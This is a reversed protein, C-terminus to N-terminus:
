LAHAHNLWELMGSGHLPALDDGMMLELPALGSRRLIYPQSIQDQYTWRLQEALWAKGFAELRTRAGRNPAYYAILGTAWLGWGPPHGQRRYYEAQELIPRGAYKPMAWSAEAEDYVCGRWPHVFQAMGSPSILVSRVIWDLARPSVLRCAADMWIVVDSHLAYEWPLCKAHKAALRPHVDPRPELVVRVGGDGVLSKDDTVMVWDVDISQPVHEVPADYGGYVSSVVSVSTM